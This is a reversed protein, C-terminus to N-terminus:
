MTTSPIRHFYDSSNDIMRSVEESTANPYFRQLSEVFSDRDGDLDAIVKFPLPFDMDFSNWASSIQYHYRLHNPNSWLDYKGERTLIHAISIRMQFAIGSQKFQLVGKFGLADRMAGLLLSRKQRLLSVPKGIRLRGLDDSGVVISGLESQVPDTDRYEYSFVEPTIAALEPLGLARYLYYTQASKPDVFPQTARDSIANETAKQALFHNYRLQNPEHGKEPAYVVFPSAMSARRPKGQEDFQYLYKDYYLSDLSMPYVVTSKDLSYNHLTFLTQHVMLTNYDEAGEKGEKETDYRSFQYNIQKGNIDFYKLELAYYIDKGKIVDFHKRNSSISLSGTEDKDLTIEQYIPFPTEHQSLDYARYTGKNTKRAYRLIAQVSYIQEHGRVDREISSEPAVVIPALISKMRENSCGATLLVVLPLYLLKRLQTM